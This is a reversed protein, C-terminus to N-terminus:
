HIDIFEKEHRGRKIVPRGRHFDAAVIQITYRVAEQM